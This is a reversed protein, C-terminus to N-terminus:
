LRFGTGDGLRHGKRGASRVPAPRSPFDRLLWRAEEAVPWAAEVRKELEGRGVAFVGFHAKASRGLSLSILRFESQRLSSTLTQTASFSCPERISNRSIFSRAPPIETL